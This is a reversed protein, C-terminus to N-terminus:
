RQSAARHIFVVFNILIPATSRGHRQDRGNKAALLWNAEAKLNRHKESSFAGRTYKADLQLHPGFSSPQM